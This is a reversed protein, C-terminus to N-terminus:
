VPEDLQMERMGGLTMMWWAGGRREWYLPANWGCEGVSVWGLSLWFEPRQYGRDEMFAIYERNTVPRSLLSFPRLLVEHQPGENDFAFGTGDHGIWDLGGPFDRWELPM